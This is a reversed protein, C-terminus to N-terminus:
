RFEYGIVAGRGIHVGPLSLPVLPQPPARSVFVGVVKLV